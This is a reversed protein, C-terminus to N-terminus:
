LEIRPLLARLRSILLELRENIVHMEEALPCLMPDQPHPGMGGDKDGSLIPAIRDEIVSLLEEFDKCNSAFHDLQKRVQPDRNPTQPGTDTYTVCKNGRDFDANVYPSM